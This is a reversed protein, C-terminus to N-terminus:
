SASWFCIRPGIPLLFYDATRRPQRRVEYPELQIFDSLKPSKGSCIIIARRLFYSGSPRTFAGKREMGTTASDVGRSLLRWSRQGPSVTRVM